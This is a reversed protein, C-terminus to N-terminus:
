KGRFNFYQSWWHSVVAKLLVDLLISLLVIWAQGQRWLKACRKKGRTAFIQIPCPSHWVNPVVAKGKPPPSFYVSRVRM